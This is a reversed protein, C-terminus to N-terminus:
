FKENLEIVLKTIDWVENEEFLAIQTYPEIASMFVNTFVMSPEVEGLLSNNKIFRVNIPEFYREITNIYMTVVIMDPNQGNLIYNQSEEQSLVRKVDVKIMHTVDIPRKVSDSDYYINGGNTVAEWSQAFTTTPLLLLAFLLIFLNKKLLNMRKLKENEWKLM